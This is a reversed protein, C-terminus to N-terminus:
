TLPVSALRDLLESLNKGALFLDLDDMGTFFVDNVTQGTLTISLEQHSNDLVDDEDLDDLLLQEYLGRLNTDQVRFHLIMDLDGDHDVDELASQVAFAGAFVVTSANLQSADFDPTTLIAVPIVGNEQLNVPNTASGPKVDIM